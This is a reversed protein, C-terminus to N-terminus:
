AFKRKKRNELVTSLSFLLIALWIFGFSILEINTFPEKYVVTGLILIITPSFYQIFGLISQPLAQAGKAFLILPYATVLGGLMLFVDTKWDFQLFSTNNTFMLFGYYVLAFPLIFLTEIALGRTADLQIKKKLAGYVAFSCALGLAVWPIKGYRITMLAVGIFAIFVAVIQAKSLQEKFLFLGFLVTILPNIYYGLSTEVVHENTVAWIYLFWNCSIVFSALLLLFFTKKEQWLWKLDEILKSKQGIIFIFITTFIFSWIIRNLLIEISNVHELLKWYVPFFGWIIYAAMASIMGKREEFM